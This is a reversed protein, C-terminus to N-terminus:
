ECSCISLAFLTIVARAVSISPHVKIFSISEFAAARITRNRLTIPGIKESMGYKTVMERAIKTAVEIDNSAGTSIDDFTIKEAVRGGMATVIRDLMASKLMHSYDEDPRYLTYGGAMGSPIISIEYVPECNELYYASVAHGAEHYATIMKDKDNVVHSKKETGM